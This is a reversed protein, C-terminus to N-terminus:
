LLVDVIRRVWDPEHGPPVRLETGDAFRIVLPESTAAPRSVPVLTLPSAARRAEQRFEHRWWSFTHVNLGEERAFEVAKLGSTEYRDVIQRWEVRSRKPQRQM